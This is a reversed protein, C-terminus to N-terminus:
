QLSHPEIPPRISLYISWPCCFLVPLSISVTRPPRCSQPGASFPVLGELAVCEISCTWPLGSIGRTPHLPSPPSQTLPTPAPQRHPCVQSLANRPRKIDDPCTPPGPSGSLFPALQFLPHPEPGRRADVPHPEPGWRQSCKSHLVWYTFWNLLSHAGSPPWECVSFGIGLCCEEPSTPKASARGVPLWPINHFAPTFKPGAAPRQEQRLRKGGWGDM